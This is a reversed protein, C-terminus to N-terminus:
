KLFTSPMVVMEVDGRAVLTDAAFLETLVKFRKPHIEEVTGVAKLLVDQPTPAIYQVNLTATVFRPAPHGDGIEHGNKRHLALSASGASHCDIISAILGGYVIGLAGGTYKQEPQYYTVTKDGDWSTRLQHGEKNLRGCGFCHAFDDSYIDQIAKDVVPHNSM